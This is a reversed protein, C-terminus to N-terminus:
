GRNAGERRTKRKADGRVIEVHGPATIGLFALNGRIRIVQITIGGTFHITAEPDDIVESANRELVLM